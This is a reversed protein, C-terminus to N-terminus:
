QAVCRVSNGNNADYDNQPHVNLSNFRLYYAAVGGNATSSWYRGNSGVDNVSKNYGGARPIYFPGTTINSVTISAQNVLYYWSKSGKQTDGSYPLRWGAPCISQPAEDGDKMNKANSGATAAYWNYYNGQHYHLDTSDSALSAASTASDTGSPIYNNGPDYSESADYSGTWTGTATYTSADIQWSSEVDSDSSTLTTGSVLDYDLNQTMWINGDDLKTVWYLKNDRSDEAQVAVNTTLTSGWTAVDQMYLTTPILQCIGGSMEYGEPCEATSPHMLTYKVRGTYSGSAQISTPYIQYTSTVAAVSSVTGSEKKAVMTYSSPVTHYNNNNFDNVSILGTGPTVKMAWNSTPGSTATGTVITNSGSVLTTAGETDGTYGVAYIGFGGSDNCSATFTTTGIGSTATGPTLTATHSTMGSGSLTCTFDVVNVTATATYTASSADTAWAAGCSFIVGFVTNVVLLSLLYFKNKKM